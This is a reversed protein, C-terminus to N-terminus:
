RSNPEDDKPHKDDLDTQELEEESSEQNFVFKWEDNSKTV